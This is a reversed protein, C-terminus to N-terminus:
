LIAASRAPSSGGEVESGKGGGDKGGEGGGLVPGEGERAEDEYSRIKATRSVPTPAFELSACLPCPLPFLFPVDLFPLDAPSVGYRTAVYGVLCEYCVYHGCCSAAVLISPFFHFCIPCM